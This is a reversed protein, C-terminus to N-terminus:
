AKEEELEEQMETLDVVFKGYFFQTWKKVILYYLPFFLIFFLILYKNFYNSLAFGAFCAPVYLIVMVKKYLDLDNSLQDINQKLSYSITEASRVRKTHNYLRPFVIALLVITIMTLVGLGIFLLQSPEQKVFVFIYFVVLIALISILEAMMNKRIKALPSSSSNQIFRKVDAESVLDNKSGLQEWSQKLDDLEM